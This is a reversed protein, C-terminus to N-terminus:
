IKGIGITISTDQVKTLTMGIAYNPSDNTCTRHLQGHKQPMIQLKFLGLIKSSFFPFDLIPYLFKSLNGVPSLTCCHKTPTKLSGHTKVM